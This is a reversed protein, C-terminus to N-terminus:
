PLEQIRVNVKYLCKLPPLVLIESPTDPPDQPTKVTYMDQVTMWAQKRPYRIGKKAPTM